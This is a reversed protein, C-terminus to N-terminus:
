ADLAKHYKELDQNAIEATKVKILDTRYRQEIDKYESNLEDKKLDLDAKMTSVEGGVKAQEGQLDTLKQRKEHYQENYKRSSKRAEDVNLAEIQNDLEQVKAKHQRLLENDTLNRM